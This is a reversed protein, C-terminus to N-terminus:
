RRSGVLFIFWYILLRVSVSSYGGRGGGRTVASIRDLPLGPEHSVDQPSTATESMGGERVKSVRSKEGFCPWVVILVAYYIRLFAAVGFLLSETRGRDNRPFYVCGGKM